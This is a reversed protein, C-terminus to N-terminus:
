AASNTAFYTALRPTEEIRLGVNVSLRELMQAEAM